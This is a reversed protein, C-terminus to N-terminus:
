VLIRTFYFRELELRSRIALYNALGEIGLTAQGQTNTSIVTWSAQPPFPVSNFIALTIRNGNSDLGVTISPVGAVPPSGLEALPKYAVLSTSLEIEPNGSAFALGYSVIYRANPKLGAFDIAGDLAQTSPKGDKRRLSQISTPTEVTTPGLSSVSEPNIQATNFQCTWDIFLSGCKLEETDVPVGNIDLVDTVQIIYAKGQLTFRENNKTEGTYYFQDDARKALPIIHPAIFNWQQGGTQAVAQRVLSDPDQIISADDLPDLDIYAAFQCALTTPV